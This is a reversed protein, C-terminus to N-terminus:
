SDPRLDRTELSSIRMDEATQHSTVAPHTLYKGLQSVPASFLGLILGVQLERAIRQTNITLHYYTSDRQDKGLYKRIYGEREADAERVLSEAKQQSLHRKGMM